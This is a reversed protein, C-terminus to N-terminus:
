LSIGYPPVQIHQLMNQQIYVNNNVISDDMEFVYKENTRITDNNFTPYKLLKNKAYIDHLLYYIGMNKYSQNKYIYSYLRRKQIHNFLDIYQYINCKPMNKLCRNQYSNSNSALNKNILCKYRKDRGNIINNNALYYYNLDKIKNHLDNGLYEDCKFLYLENNNTYHMILNRPKHFKQSKIPKHNVKKNKKNKIVCSLDKLIDDYKQLERIINSSINDYLINTYLNNYTDVLKEEDYYITFIFMGCYINNISKVISYLQKNIDDETPPKNLKELVDKYLINSNHQVFCISIKSIDLNLEKIKELIIHLKILSYLAAIHNLVTSHDNMIEIESEIQNVYLKTFSTKIYKQTISDKKLVYNMINQSAIGNKIHQNTLYKWYGISYRCINEAYRNIDAIYDDISLKSKYFSDSFRSYICRKIQNLVMKWRKEDSLNYSNAIRNHNKNIGARFGSLYYNLKNTLLEFNSACIYTQHHNLLNM